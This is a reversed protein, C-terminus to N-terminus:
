PAVVICTCKGFSQKDVVGIENKVWVRLSERNSKMV